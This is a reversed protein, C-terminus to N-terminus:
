RIRKKPFLGLRVCNYFQMWCVGLAIAVAHMEGYTYWPTTPDAEVDLWVYNLFMPAVLVYIVAPILVEIFIGRFPRKKESM